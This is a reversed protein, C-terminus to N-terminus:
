CAEPSKCRFIGLWHTQGITSYNRLQVLHWSVLIMINDGLEGGFESSTYFGGDAYGYEIDDYYNGITDCGLFLSKFQILQTIIIIINVASFWPAATYGAHAHSLTTQM